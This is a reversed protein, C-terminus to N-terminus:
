RMGRAATTWRWLQTSPCKCPPRKAVAPCQALALWAAVARPPDWFRQSLRHGPQELELLLQRRSTQRRSRVTHQLHLLEPHM